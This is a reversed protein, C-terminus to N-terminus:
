VGLTLKATTADSRVARGIDRLSHSLREAVPVGHAGLNCEPTLLCRTRLEGPSCGRQVLECWLGALRHWARNATVGIPGGTAVAGWAIWGGTSLFREVYGALSVVSNSVPLSVVHPGSDLMLSVDVESCCHVGVTAVPEVAAMASSLLDICEDLTLPSDRGVVEHAFPEDFIVLQPAGPLAEDVAAALARVHARVVVRGVEFALRPTAGARILAVGVSLPGAFHWAVPGAYGRQRAVELFTRFGTFHDRELDTCVAADPDLRTVDVAVTGYQAPTVGRVGGLAQVIPSEAPSRRPLSPMTPVDYSGFVFDVAQRANRHPLSGAGVTAAPTLWSARSAPQPSHTEPRVMGNM